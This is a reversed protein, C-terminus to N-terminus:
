GLLPEQPSNKIGANPISKETRRCGNRTYGNILLPCSDPTVITQKNDRFINVTVLQGIACTVTPTQGKEKAIILNPCYEGAM